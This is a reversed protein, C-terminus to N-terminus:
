GQRWGWPNKYYISGSVGYHDDDRTKDYIPNKKDCDEKGIFGNAIFKFPDGFYAYTLQFDYADSAM